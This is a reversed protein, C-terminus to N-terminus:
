KKTNLEIITIGPNFDLYIKSIKKHKLNKRVMDRIKTGKNYGHVIVIRSIQEDALDITDIITQKAQEITYGHLDLQEEM